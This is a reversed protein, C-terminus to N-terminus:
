MQVMVGCSLGDSRQAGCTGYNDGLCVDWLSEQRKLADIGEKAAREVRPRGCVCRTTGRSTFARDEGRVSSCEADARVDTPAYADRRPVTPYIPELRPM